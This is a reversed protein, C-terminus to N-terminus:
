IHGRYNLTLKGHRNQPMSAAIPASISVFIICHLGSIDRNSIDYIAPVHEVENKPVRMEGIKGM